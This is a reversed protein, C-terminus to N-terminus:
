PRTTLLVVYLAFIWNDFASQGKWGQSVKAGVPLSVTALIPSRMDLVNGKVELSVM